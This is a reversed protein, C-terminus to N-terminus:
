ILCLWSWGSSYTAEFSRQLPRSQSVAAFGPECPRQNRRQRHRVTNVSATDSCGGRKSLTSSLFCPRIAKHGRRPHSANAKCFWTAQGDEHTTDICARCVRYLSLGLSALWTVYAPFASAHYLGLCCSVEASRKTPIFLASDEKLTRSGVTANTPVIGRPSM